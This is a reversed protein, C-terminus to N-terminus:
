RTGSGSLRSAPWRRARAMRSRIWIQSSANTRLVCHRSRHLAATTCWNLAGSDTSSTGTGSTPGPWIRDLDLRRPYTVRVQVRDVAVTARSALGGKMRAMFPDADDSRHTSAHGRHLFAVPDSHGPQMGGAPMASMAEGSPFGQAIAMLIGAIRDVATEGLVDKAVRVIDAM